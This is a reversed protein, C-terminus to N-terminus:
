LGKFKYEQYVALTCAICGLILLVLAFLTKMKFRYLLYVILPSIVFLQTDASLYWSHGYCKITCIPYFTVLINVWSSVKLGVHICMMRIVYWIMRILMIKFMFYHQGGIGNVNNALSILQVLGFPVMVWSDWCHCQLYFRYM